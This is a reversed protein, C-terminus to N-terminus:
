QIKPLSKQLAEAFLAGVDVKAAIRAAMLYLGAMKRHLFLVDPPPTHWAQPDSSISMGRRQIRSALDSAGFDYLGKTRLPEAAMLFIDIVASRNTANINDQFFGLIQLADGLMVADNATAAELAAQYNKVFGAAYTRVAGFDLLIIKGTDSQYSFNALNPDTQVRCFCLLEAFFLRFLESMVRSAELSGPPISALPAGKLFSMCLIQETSLEDFWEPLLFSDAQDMSLVAAAYDRMQQGEHRYDAELHLQARAEIILPELDLSKPVLGSVRLLSVVNAVDSDISKAVGPYQIKIAMHRGSRDTAEHVQGISAAAIPDFSFRSFQEQWDAGWSKELIASWQTAPMRIADDQLRALIDALERPLLNGADMSVLQGVKMAAGRMRALQDTVRGVNEKTLLLDSMRPKQGKLLQRGGETIVNQALRGALAGMGMMRSSRSSPVARESRKSSPKLM